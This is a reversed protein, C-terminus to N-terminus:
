EKAPLYKFGIYGGGWGKCFHYIIKNIGAGIQVRPGTIGIHEKNSRGERSSTHMRGNWKM